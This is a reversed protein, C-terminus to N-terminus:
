FHITFRSGVVVADDIAPDLGPNMIYQIDPQVSLWPTLQDQYTLELATEATDVPTGADFAAEKINDTAHAGSIGLGLRGEDRGPILGTYVLGASWSYDFNNVHDDAIGFRGFLTLGQNSSNPEAYLQHEGLIYAGQNIHRTLNGATQVTDDFKKTYRWIGVAIKEHEPAYGTELVMLAGDNSNFQVHTGKQNETSGSVGDLIVGQVYIDHGPELKARLGVSTTPFISPGNLGTQAIETGIGYTPQLFLGASDNAYFESNLDYLGALVSFRNDWMSQQIWAQYLKATNTLVEINDVGQASGVLEDNPRGGNNNLIHILATTGPLNLLKAGDLSFIIDLNDLNRVSHKIGGAINGLLDYKYIVDTDIGKTSLQERTKGIWPGTLTENQYSATNEEAAHTQCALITVFASSYCLKRLTSM